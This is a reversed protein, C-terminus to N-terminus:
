RKLNYSVIKELGIFILKEDAFIPKEIKNAFFIVDGGTMITILGPYQKVFHEVYGNVEFIIGNQVGAIIASSTSNGIFNFDESMSELPLRKTYDHLAQYRMRLGPSINGGHYNGEADIFDITLATGADIVLIDKSPYLSYAGIVAALRDKGLTDPTVYLNHIPIPTDATLEIFYPTHKSLIDLLGPDAMSVSSLICAGAGPLAEIYRLLAGRDALPIATVKSIDGQEAIAVKVFTNGADICITKM